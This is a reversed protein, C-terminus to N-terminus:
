RDSFGIRLIQRLPGPSGVSFTSCPPKSLYCACRRSYWMYLGSTMAVSCDATMVPPSHNLVPLKSRQDIFSRNDHMRSKNFNFGLAQRWGSNLFDLRDRRNKARKSLAPMDKPANTERPAHFRKAMAM